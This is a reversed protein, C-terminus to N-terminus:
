LRFLFSFFFILNLLLLLFLHSDKFCQSSFSYTFQLITFLSFVLIPNFYYSCIQSLFFSLNLFRFTFSFFSRFPSLLLQLIIFSFAFPHFNYFFRFHFQPFYDSPSISPFFSFIIVFIM